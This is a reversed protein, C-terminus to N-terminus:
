VSQVGGFYNYCIGSDGVTDDYILCGYVNALTASTGDSVEDTADYKIVAAAVTLDAGALAQGAQTWEAGDYVENATAWVGTDYARAATAVTNDPATTNNYLACKPTDSNLDYAAVNELADEIFTAFIKSASWAM